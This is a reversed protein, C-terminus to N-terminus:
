SRRSVRFEPLSQGVCEEADPLQLDPLLPGPPNWRRQGPYPLDDELRPCGRGKKFGRFVLVSLWLIGGLWREQDSGGLGRPRSRRRGRQRARFDPGRYEGPGGTGPADSPLARDQDRGPLFRKRSRREFAHALLRDEGTTPRLNYAEIIM